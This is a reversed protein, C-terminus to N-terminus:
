TGEGERRRKGETDETHNTQSDSNIIRSEKLTEIFMWFLCLGSYGFSGQYIAWGDVNM